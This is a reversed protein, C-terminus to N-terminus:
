ASVAATGCNHSNQTAGSIPAAIPPKIQFKRISSPASHARRKAHRTLPAIPRSRTLSGLCDRATKPALFTRAGRFSPPPYRGGPALRPFTGCLAFRRHAVSIESPPWLCPHFPAALACRPSPLLVQMAFGVRLLALYPDRAARRHSHAAPANRASLGPNAALAAQCCAAWIFPQGRPRPRIPEDWRIGSASVSGPKHPERVCGIWVTLDPQKWNPNKCLRSCSMLRAPSGMRASWVCM